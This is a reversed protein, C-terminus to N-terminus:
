EHYLQLYYRPEFYVLQLPVATLVAARCKISSVTDSRLTTLFNPFLKQYFYMDNLCTENLCTIQFDVYYVNDPLETQKNSVRRINRYIIEIATETETNVYFGVTRIM